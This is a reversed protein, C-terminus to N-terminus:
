CDLLLRFFFFVGETSFVRAPLHPEGRTCQQFISSFSQDLEIRNRPNTLCLCVCDFPSLTFSFTNIARNRNTPQHDEPFFAKGGGVAAVGLRVLLQWDVITTAFHATVSNQFQFNLLNGTLFPYKQTLHLPSTTKNTKLIHCMGANCRCSINCQKRFM